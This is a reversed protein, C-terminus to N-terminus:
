RLPRKTVEVFMRKMSQYTQETIFALGDSARLSHVVLYFKKGDIWFHDGNECEIANIYEEHKGDGKRDATIMATRKRGYYSTDDQFHGSNERLDVLEFEAGEVRLKQGNTVVREM